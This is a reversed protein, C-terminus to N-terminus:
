AVHFMGYRAIYIAALFTTLESQFKQGHDMAARVQNRTNYLVLLWLIAKEAELSGEYM